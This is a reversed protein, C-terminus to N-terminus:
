RITVDIPTGLPASVAIQVRVDGAVVVVWRHSRREADDSFGSWDRALEEPTGQYDNLDTPADVGAVEGQDTYQWAWYKEFGPPLTPSSAYQALWLRYKSISADPKGGLADKLVHGSYLVPKHGTLKEVEELFVLADELSVGADEWDLAYLTDDDAWPEATQCFFRAQERPDGPRIFHYLGWLMGADEALFSRAEVKSDVYGTGETLKHIVGAIGAEAAEQLSEPISNHHSLDIFMPKPM